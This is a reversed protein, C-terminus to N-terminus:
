WKRKVFLSAGWWGMGFMTGAFAFPAFIAFLESMQTGKLISMNCAVRSGTDLDIKESNPIEM